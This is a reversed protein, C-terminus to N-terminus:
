VEMLFMMCYCLLLSSWSVLVIPLGSNLRSILPDLVSLHSSGVADYGRRSSLLILSIFILHSSEVHGPSM